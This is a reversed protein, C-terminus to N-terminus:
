RNVRFGGGSIGGSVFRRLAASLARSYDASSDSSYEVEIVDVKERKIEREAPRLPDLGGDIAVAAVIQANVIGQPVSDDALEVGDIFVGDRPWALPQESDTRSGKYDLSELYDLARVLLQSPEGTLAIGREAAYDTLQPETAYSM